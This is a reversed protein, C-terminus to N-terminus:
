LLAFGFSLFRSWTKNLFVCVVTEPSYFLSLAFQKSKSSCCQIQANTESGENEWFFQFRLTSAQLHKWHKQVNVEWRTERGLWEPAWLGLIATIGERLPCTAILTDNLKLVLDRQTLSTLSGIGHYQTEASATVCSILGWGSPKRWLSVPM